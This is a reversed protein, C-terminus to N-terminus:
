SELEALARAAAERVAPDGDSSVLYRLLTPLDALVSGLETAASGEATRGARVAGALLAILRDRRPVRPDGALRRV